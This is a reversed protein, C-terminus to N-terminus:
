EPQKPSPSFQAEISRSATSSSSEYGARTRFYVWAPCIRTTLISRLPPPRRIVQISDSLTGIRIRRTNKLLLNTAKIAPLLQGSADAPCSGSATDFISNQRLSNRNDAPSHLPSQLVVIDMSRCGARRRSQRASNVIDQGLINPGMQLTIRVHMNGADGPFRAALLCAQAAARFGFTTCRDSRQNPQAIRWSRSYARVHSSSDQGDRSFVSRAHWTMVYNRTASSGDFQM